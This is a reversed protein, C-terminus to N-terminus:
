NRSMGNGPGGILGLLFQEVQASGFQGAVNGAVYNFVGDRVSQSIRDGCGTTAVAGVALGVTLLLRARTRKIM